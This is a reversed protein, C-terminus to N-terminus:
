GLKLAQTASVVAPQTCVTSPQQGTLSCISATLYTAAGDIDKAVTNGPNSLDGAVQTDDLNALDQPTYSAGVVLVKNGLDIFPFSEDSSASLSPDYTSSDYKQFLNQQQSTLKDLSTYGGSALPTNSYIERPEFDVYKSTFTSGEFSFTVTDPDVDSASSQTEKLGSFTGFRSLAEVMAWREAACYPCYEAGVYLVEPLAPSGGTLLPQGKLVTPPVVDPSSSATSPPLGIKNVVSWPVGTVEAVVTPDANTVLANSTTTTTTSSSTVKIVVIVAFIVLVV